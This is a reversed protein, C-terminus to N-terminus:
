EAAKISVFKGMRGRDRFEVIGPQPRDDDRPLPIDADGSVLEGRTGLVQFFVSDVNDARLLDRTADPLRLEAVGSANSTLIVGIWSLM